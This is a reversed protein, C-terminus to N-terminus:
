PGRHCLVKGPKPASLASCCPCLLVLPRGAPGGGRARRGTGPMRGPRPHLRSCLRVRAWGRPDAAQRTCTSRQGTAGPQRPLRRAAGRLGPPRGPSPLPRGRGAGRRGAPRAPWVATLHRGAVGWPRPSVLPGPTPASRCLSASVAAQAAARELPCCTRPPRGATQRLKSPYVSLRWAEASASALAPIDDGRRGPPRTSLGRGGFCHSRVRPLLWLHDDLKILFIM